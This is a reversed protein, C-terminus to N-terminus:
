NKEKCKLMNKSSFKDFDGENECSSGTTMGDHYWVIGDTGIICSTFHFDGHCNGRKNICGRKEKKQMKDDAPISTRCKHVNSRLILDDVTTKFNQWWNVTSKCSECKNCDCHATETPADPLTQTPDTYEESKMNEDVQEKVEDMTGTM